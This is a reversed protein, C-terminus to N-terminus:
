ANWLKLIQDAKNPSMEALLIHSGKQVGITDEDVWLHHPMIIYVGVKDGKSTMSVVKDRRLKIKM